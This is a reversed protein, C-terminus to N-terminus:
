ASPQKQSARKDERMIRGYPLVSELQQLEPPQGIRFFAVNEHRYRIGSYGLGINLKDWIVGGYYDLTRTANFVAPAVRDSYFSVLWLDTFQNRILDFAEVMVDLNRDNIINRDYDKRGGEVTRGYGVILDQIGFTPDTVGSLSDIGALTPIIERCDACILRVNDSLYEDRYSTGTRSSTPKAPKQPAANRKAARLRAERETIM